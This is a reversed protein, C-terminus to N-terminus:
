GRNRPLIVAVFAFLALAGFGADCGGGSGGGGSATGEDPVADQTTKDLAALAADVDSQSARLDTLVSVASAYAGGYATKDGAENIEAIRWVLSDKDAFTNIGLYNIDEGLDQGLEKTYQWRIVDGDNLYHAGASTRIFFTEVTIMWGSGGGESFESLLEGMVPDYIGKLYFTANSGSYSYPRTVGQFKAELLSKTVDAASQGDTFDVLVPEVLFGEGLTLKEVTVAVRGALAPTIFLIVCVLSLVISRFFRKMM